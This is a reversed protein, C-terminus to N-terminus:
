NKLRFFKATSSLSSNTYPGTLVPGPVDSYVGVVETAWQLMHSGAWNLIADSGQFTITLPVSVPQVTVDFNQTGSLGLDDTARVTFSFTGLTAPTWTIVGTYLDIAAGAPAADLSFTLANTPVSVFNDLYINYAGANGDGPLLALCELTGKGTTSDLVGNGTFAGIGSNTLDYTLTTWAGANIANTASPPTGGASVGVFEISGSAGGDTGIDGTSSTERLGLAVKLNKDTCLDFRVKTNFYIIPNPAANGPATVTTLRLWAPPSANTWNWSAKLVHAGAHGPPFVDTIATVGSADIYNATSGSQNPNDFMVRSGVANTKFNQFPVAQSSFDDTATVSIGVVMGLTAAQTAVPTVVPPMNVTLVAPNSTTPPDGVDNTVVVTYTGADGQTVAPIAFTSSGGTGTAGPIVAGNKKWQYYLTGNGTAEVYFAANSGLNVVQNTPQTTILIIPNVQVYANSSITNGLANTVLLRYNGSDTVQPSSLMLVSDTADPLNAGNKQWQYSFPANGIANAWLLITSGVSNTQGQPQTSVYPIGEIVQVGDFYADGATTGAAPGGITVDDWKPASAPALTFIRGLVGDVYFSVTATSNDNLGRVIDFRHWGASRNVSALSLNFWGATAGYAIRAQYKNPDYTEGPLSVSNYKGIALMQQLTGNNYSGGSYARSEVWARTASGDYVYCILRFSEASVPTTLNAYMRDTSNTMKASYAGGTPVKNTYTSLYLTTGGAFNGWSNLNGSEFDEVFNTQSYGPAPLLCLALAGVNLPLTTRLVKLPKM